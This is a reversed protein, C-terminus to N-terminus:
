ETFETDEKTLTLIITDPDDVQDEATGLPTTGADEQTIIGLLPSYHFYHFELLDHYFSLPHSRPGEGEHQSIAARCVTPKRSRFSTNASKPKSKESEKLSIDKQIRRHGGRRRRPRVAELSIDM